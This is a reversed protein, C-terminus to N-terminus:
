AVYASFVSRLSELFEVYDDVGVHQVHYHTITIKYFYGTSLYYAITLTGDYDELLTMLHGKILASFDCDSDVLDTTLTGKTTDNPDNYSYILEVTNPHALAYQVNTILEELSKDYPKHLITRYAETNNVLLSVDAVQSQNMDSIVSSTTTASLNYVSRRFTVPSKVELSLNM